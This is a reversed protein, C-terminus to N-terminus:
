SGEKHNENNNLISDKRKLIKDQNKIIDNTLRSLVDNIGDILGQPKLRSRSYGLEEIHKLVLYLLRRTTNSILRSYKEKNLEKNLQEATFNYDIGLAQKIHEIFYQKINNIFEKNNIRGKVLLNYDNQIRSMTKTTLLVVRPIRKHEKVEERKKKLLLLVFSTLIIMSALVGVFSIITKTVIVRKTPKPKELPCPKCPGGCDVGEEGIDKIGNSCSPCPKCPGGCDVGEEMPDKILNHCSPCPKCPGGCDVGEEGDNKILDFCTPKYDCYEFESPKIYDRTNYCDNTIWCKRLRIGTSLCPGFETCNWEPVCPEGFSFSVSSSSKKGTSGGGSGSSINRPVHIVRLYVLNTRNSANYPDYAYFIVTRNGFWWPDPTFTVVNNSDITININPVPTHTYHLTDGDPDMFYDDLDLGTVVTNELWTQNPFESILVPPRNTIIFNSTNTIIDYDHTTANCMVRFTFNGARYFVKDYEYLQTTTNFSMRYWDSYNGTTNFSIDCYVDSYNIIRGINNTLNAYFRLPQKVFVTTFDSTDSLTLILTTGEHLEYTGSPFLLDYIVTSGQRSVFSCMPVSCVFGNRYLKPVDFSVNYFILKAPRRLCLLADTNISLMNHDIILYSDLDASDFNMKLGSFNLAAKNPIGVVVDELEVWSTFQSFNTTLNNKFNNWIPPEDHNNITIYNNFTTRTSCPGDCTAIIMYNCNGDSVNTTDWTCNYYSNNDYTDNCISGYVSKRNYSFWVTTVYENGSPNTATAELTYNGSLVAWDLPNDLTISSPKGICLSVKASAYGTIGENRLTRLRMNIIINLLINLLLLLILIIVLYHNLRSLRFRKNNVKNNTNNNMKNNVKNGM